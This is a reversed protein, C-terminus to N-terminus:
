AAKDFDPDDAGGRGEDAFSMQEPDTADDGNKSKKISLDATRAFILRGDQNFFKMLHEREVSDEPLIFSLRGSFGLRNISAAHFEAGECTFDEIFAHQTQHDKGTARLTAYVQSKVLNAHLDVLSLDDFMGSIGISAGKKTPTFGGFSIPINFTRADGNSPVSPPSAAKTTSKRKPTPKKKTSKRAM